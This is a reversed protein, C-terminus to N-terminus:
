RELADAMKKRLEFFRVPDLPPTTAEPLVSSLLKKVADKGVKEEYLKLYDFDDIADGINIARISPVVSEGTGPRPPYFVTTYASEASASPNDWPSVSKGTSRQSPRGYFAVNWLLVGDGDGQYVQWPFFRNRLYADDAITAPYQYYWTTDFNRIRPNVVAMSTAPSTVSSIGASFLSIM